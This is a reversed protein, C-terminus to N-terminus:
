FFKKNNGIPVVDGFSNYGVANFKVATIDGYGLNKFSIVAMANGNEVVIECGVDEIHANIDYRKITGKM